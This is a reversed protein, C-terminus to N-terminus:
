GTFDRQHDDRLLRVPNAIFIVDNEDARGIRVVERNASSAVLALTRNVPLFLQYILLTWVIHLGVAALPIAFGLRYLGENALINHATTAADGSAALMAIVTVQGFAAPFGELAEFVGALRARARPALGAISEM